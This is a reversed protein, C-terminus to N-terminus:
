AGAEGAAPAALEEHTEVRGAPLRILAVLFTAAMVGAMIYFATQTSHGFALQVSHVAARPQGAASGAAAESGLSSAVAHAQPKTAGIKTLANTVNTTNESVLIAGLVALGLSAGFNRATQTIGTVESYSSSPARNVADTSATGLMLGVGGGALAVYFWQAGLSLDTLKGALLYFGVASIVCGGVVAPKAGRTDLIRGGVQALIVFGIFFYLLYQGAESSSKGLSVQAYVSGFFFFPIFVVSM